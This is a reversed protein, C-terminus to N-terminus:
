RRWGAFGLAASKAQYNLRVGHELLQTPENLEELQEIVEAEDATKAMRGVRGM